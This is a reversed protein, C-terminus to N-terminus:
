QPRQKLVDRTALVATVELQRQENPLPKIGVDQLIRSSRQDFRVHVKKVRRKSMVSEVDNNPFGSITTLKDTWFRDKLRIPDLEESRILM